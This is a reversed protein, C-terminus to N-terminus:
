GFVYVFGAVIAAIYLTWVVLGVGWVLLLVM